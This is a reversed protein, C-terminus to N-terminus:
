LHATPNARVRAMADAAEPEIMRVGLWRGGAVRALYDSAGNEHRTTPELGVPGVLEPGGVVDNRTQQPQSRGGRATSLM